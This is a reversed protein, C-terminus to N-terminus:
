AELAQSKQTNITLAEEDLIHGVSVFAAQQSDASAATM